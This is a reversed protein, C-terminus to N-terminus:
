HKKGFWGREREEDDGAFFASLAEDAAEDPLPQDDNSVAERLQALFTDDASDESAFLSPHEPEVAPVPQTILEEDVMEGSEDAHEDLDAVTVFRPPTTRVEVDLM